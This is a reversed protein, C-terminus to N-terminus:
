MTKLIQKLKIISLSTKFLKKVIKNRLKKIVKTNIEKFIIM